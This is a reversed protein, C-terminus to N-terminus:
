KRVNSAGASQKVLRFGSVKLWSFDVTDTVARSLIMLDMPERVPKDLQFNVNVAQESTVERWGSFFASP